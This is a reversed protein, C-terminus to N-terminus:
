GSEDTAERGALRAAPVLAHFAVGFGVAVLLDTAVLAAGFGSEFLRPSPAARAWTAYSAVTLLRDGYLAAVAVATALPVVPLALRTKPDALVVHVGVEYGLVTLAAAALTGAILAAAPVSRPDVTYLVSWAPEKTASYALAPWVDFLAFLAAVTRGRALTRAGLPAPHALALLAGIAFCLLPAILLPM